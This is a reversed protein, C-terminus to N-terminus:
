QKADEDVFTRSPWDPSTREVHSLQCKDLVQVQRQQCGEQWASRTRDMATASGPDAFLCLLVGAFSLALKM